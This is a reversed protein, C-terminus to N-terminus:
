GAAGRQRLSEAIEHLVAVIQVSREQARDEHREMLRQLVTLDPRRSLEDVRGELEAIKSRATELQKALRERHAAEADREAQWAKAAAQAAELTARYRLAYFGAAVIAVLGALGTMTDADLAALM